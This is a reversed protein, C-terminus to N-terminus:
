AAGGTAADGPPSPLEALQNDSEDLWVWQRGGDVSLGHRQRDPGQGLSRRVRRYARRDGTSEAVEDASGPGRLGVFFAPTPLFRGRAHTADQVTLLVLGTLVPALILAGPRCQPLWAPPIYPMACTAMVRDFPAGAAYGAAGDGTVVTPRYGAQALRRRAPETIEDELDVTVVQDAGLRESLLAANYGTGTGVELVRMGDDVRLEQLMMAMLSPQSSSSVPQGDLLQTVLPTDAYAGELWEQRTNTDDAAVRRPGGGFGGAQWYVPAFVHRAVREFTGRWDPDTLAQQATLDHVMASRLAAAEEPAATVAAREEPLARADEM